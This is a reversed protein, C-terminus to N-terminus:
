SGFMYEVQENYIKSYKGNVSLLLEHTGSEIIRGEELMIIKDASKAFGLRHSIFIVTKNKALSNVLNYFNIESIPDLYATPEDLIWIEANENALLRAIAIRQWQGKSLDTGKNIEGLKTHIGYPLTDIHEKLQVKEIINIVEEDSLVRDSNGCQINDKISMQYHLFDQYIFSLLNKENNKSNSTCIKLNGEKIEILKSLINVLTTKGSGNEGLVAIKEGHKIEFSLNCLVEKKSQPYTYSVNDLLIAIKNSYDYTQKKLEELNEYEKYNDIYISSQISDTFAQNMEAITNILENFMDMCLILFGIEFNGLVIQCAVIFMMLIYPTYLIIRSLRNLREGEKHIEIRKNQELAYNDEWKKYFYKFLNNIVYEQHYNKNHGIESFYQQKKSLINVQSWVDGMTFMVRRSYISFIVVIALYVVSIIINVRSLFFCYIVLLLFSNIYLICSEFCQIISQLTKNKVQYIINSKEYSEYYEYKIRGAKLLIDSKLKISIGKYILNWLISKIFMLLKIILIAGGFIFIKKIYVYLAEQESLSFFANVFTQVSLLNIFIELVSTMSLLVYLVVKGRNLIYVYKIAYLYNSFIHKINNM